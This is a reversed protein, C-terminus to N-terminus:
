APQTSSSSVSGGTSVTSGSSNLSYNRARDFAVITYEYRTSASVDQDIYNTTNFVTKFYRNDRYINYGDIGVDDWSANWNVRISSTSIASTQVNTVTSPRQNDAYANASGLGLLLLASITIRM